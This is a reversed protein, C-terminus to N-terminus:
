PTRRYHIRRATEAILAADALGWDKKLTIPISPWLAKARQVASSKVSKGRPLGELLEKQWVQPRVDIRPLGLAAILGLWIGYGMGFRFSSAVGDHPMSAVKEVAVTSPNVGESWDRLLEAMAPLDYDTKGKGNPAIIPTRCAYLLSGDQLVVAFAGQLGPDIGIYIM